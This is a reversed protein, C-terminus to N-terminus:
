SHAEYPFNSSPLAFDRPPFPERSFSAPRSCVNPAERAGLVSPPEDLGLALDLRVGLGYGLDLPSRARRDARSGPSPSSFVFPLHGLSLDRERLHPHVSYLYPRPPPHHSVRKAGPCCALRWSVYARTM